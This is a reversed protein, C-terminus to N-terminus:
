ISMMLQFILFFYFPDIDITIHVVNPNDSIIVISYKPFPISSQSRLTLLYKKIFYKSYKFFDPTILNTAIFTNDANIISYFIDSLDVYTTIYLFIPFFANYESLKFLSTLQILLTTLRLIISNTSSSNIHTDFQSKLDNLIGNLDSYSSSDFLLM